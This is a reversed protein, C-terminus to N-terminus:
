GILAGRQLHPGDGPGCAALIRAHLFAIEEAGTQLGIERLVRRQRRAHPRPTQVVDDSLLVQHALATGQAHSEFGARHAGHDEEARGTGALGRDGTQHCGLGAGRVFLQRGDTRPHGLHALDDLPGPVPPSLGAPPGHEEDVLDVPEGLGLLIREQVRDLVPDDGEDPGGGLVGIELDDRREDGAALQVLELRECLGIDTGKEVPSQHSGPLARGARGSDPVATRDHVARHEIKDGLGPNPSARRANVM